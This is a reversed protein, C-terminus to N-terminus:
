RGIAVLSFSQADLPTAILTSSDAAVPGLLRSAGSLPAPAPDDVRDLDARYLGVVASRTDVFDVRAGRLSPRVYAPDTRIQEATLSRDLEVPQSVSGAKLWFQSFKPEPHVAGWDLYVLRGDSGLLPFAQKGSAARSIKSGSAREVLVVDSLSAAEDFHGRPDESFDSLAVHTLSVDAFRQQGPGVAVPNLEDNIVDYLYVDSDGTKADGLFATFVVADRAVRPEAALEFEAGLTKQAGLYSVRVRSTGADDVEWAIVDGAVAPRRPRATAAELREAEGSALDLRYLAGGDPEPAVYVLSCGDLAYPPYGLPDWGGASFVSLAPLEVMDCSGPGGGGDSAGGTIGTSGASSSSEGGRAAAGGQSARGASGGSQTVGAGGPPGVNSGAGGNTAGPASPAARDDCGLLAVGLASFAVCVARRNL